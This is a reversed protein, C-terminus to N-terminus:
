RRRWGWRGRGGEEGRGDGPGGGEGRSDEDQVIDGGQEGGRRREGVESSLEVGEEGRGGEGDDGRGGGRGDTGEAEVALEAQASETGIGAPGNNGM